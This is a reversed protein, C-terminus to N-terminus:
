HRHVFSPPISHTGHLRKDHACLQRLFGPNPGVIPRRARVATLAERMTMQERAMLYAVTVTTSRSVGAMCHVLVRGPRGGDGDGDGDGDGGATAKRAADIFEFAGQM